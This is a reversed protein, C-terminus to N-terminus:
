CQSDLGYLPSLRHNSVLNTSWMEKRLVFVVRIHTETAKIYRNMLKIVQRM